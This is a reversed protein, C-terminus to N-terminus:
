ARGCCQQEGAPHAASGAAVGGNCDINSIQEVPGAGVKDTFGAATLDVDDVVSLNKVVVTFTVNAGPEPVSTPNATKTVEIQSPEKTNTFTCTVVEGASVNFTATRTDVNGSSQSDGCDISTLTWGPKDSEVSTYPGGPAVLQQITGNNSSITGAPTGTFAFSSTGGVMVKKVILTAKKTNTFTCTVTEGAAVVATAERGSDSSNSTPDVCTIDTLSWGAPDANESM